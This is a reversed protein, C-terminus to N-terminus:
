PQFTAAEVAVLAVVSDTTKFTTEFSPHLM